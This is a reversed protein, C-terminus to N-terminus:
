RDIQRQLECFLWGGVIAALVGSVVIEGLSERYEFWGAERNLWSVLHLMGFFCLLGIVPVVLMGSIRDM